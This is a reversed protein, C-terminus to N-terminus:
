RGFWYSFSYRGSNVFVEITKTDRLVALSCLSDGPDLHVGVPMGRVGVYDKRTELLADAPNLLPQAAAVPYNCVRGDQLSLVRPVSLAGAYQAGADLPKGWSYLWGIMVRRGGADSFTQPAYFQPGAEPASYQEPMFHSGDFDGSIFQVAYELAGIKSFMLVYRGDLMFFDPCEMVAGYDRSEFLVGQYEWHILDQSAFLLVRGTGGSGSGCVMRYGDPFETVKPDRFDPTDAVPCRLIPNDAYKEFHVGDVSVALSQTQGLEHSVSTYFLYLLGDKEVASGSFCGGSNEYPQDPYLAIPLEKWVLLDDSVAHGWHMPGWVPKHPNHQFFAHYQGKFYILGNPDNMWGRAPEFHYNLREPVWCGEKKLSWGTYAIRLAMSVCRRM